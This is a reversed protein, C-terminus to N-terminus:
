KSLFEVTVRDSGRGPFVVARARLAQILERLEIDNMDRVGVTRASPLAARLEEARAVAKEQLERQAFLKERVKEADELGTFAEIMNDLKEKEIEVQRDADLLEQELSASERIEDTREYVADRVVKEVLDASITVRRPCDSIPSCRYFAYRKGNKDTSGISMRGGCTACRLVGIRSLLRESKPRRGRISRMRQVKQWVGREVIAPHSNPNVIKGFRLEGLVIRSTLLSQTGHFTREIGKGRLFERVEMVTAGDARRRFAEAVVRAQRPDPELRDDKRRRYGPPINPFPPVGREVARRKAEATREATVRRHYEAVMGLMTSSLWRSATDARVEGVDLAIVAGGAREVRDLIEHQVPLSRVLRDFYAVVVVDADGREVMEVAQRLGPRRSLPAGGSVNEEDFTEILDLGDRRSALDIRERQESPSVYSEGDRDGKRSVRVVGVARRLSSQM